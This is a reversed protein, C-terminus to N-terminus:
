EKILLFELWILGGVPIVGDKIRQKVFKPKTKRQKAPEILWIPLSVQKNVCSAVAM